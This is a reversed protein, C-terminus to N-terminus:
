RNTAQDDDPFIEEFVANLKEIQELTLSFAKKQTKEFNDQLVKRASRLALTQDWFLLLQDYEVTYATLTEPSLEKVLEAWLYGDGGFLTNNEFKFQYPTPSVKLGQSVHVIANKPTLNRCLVRTKTKRVAEVQGVVNVSGWSRRLVFLKDGNEANALNTQFRSM